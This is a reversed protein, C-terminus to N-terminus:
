VEVNTAGRGLHGVEARLENIVAADAISNLVVASVWPLHEHNNKENPFDRKVRARPQVSGCKVTARPLPLLVGRIAHQFSKIVDAGEPM